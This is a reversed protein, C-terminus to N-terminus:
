QTAIYVMCSASIHLIFFGREIHARPVSFLTALVDLTLAHLDPAQPGSAAM